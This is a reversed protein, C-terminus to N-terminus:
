IPKLKAFSKICDLKQFHAFTGALMNSLISMITLVTPYFYQHTSSFQEKFQWKDHQAKPMVAFFKSHTPEEM